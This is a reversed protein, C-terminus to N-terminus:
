HALKLYKEFKCELSALTSQFWEKIIRQKQINESRAAAALHPREAELAHLDVAHKYMESVLEKIIKDCGFAFYAQKTDRLFQLDAGHYVRGAIGIEAPFAAIKEYIQYRLKFLEHKLRARDTRWQRWSIIAVLTAVIATIVTSAVTLNM